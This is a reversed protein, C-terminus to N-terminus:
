RGYIAPFFGDKTQRHVPVRGPPLLQLPPRQIRELWNDNPVSNPTSLEAM